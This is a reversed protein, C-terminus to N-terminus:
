TFRWEDRVSPLEDVFNIWVCNIECSVVVRDGSIVVMSDLLIKGMSVSDLNLLGYEGNFEM